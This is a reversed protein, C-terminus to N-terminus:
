RPAVQTQNEQLYFVRLLTTPTDSRILKLSTELRM